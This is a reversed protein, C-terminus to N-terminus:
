DLIVVEVECEKDTGSCDQDIGDGCIEEAGPYIDANGDDCDGDLSELERAPFYYDAPQEAAM